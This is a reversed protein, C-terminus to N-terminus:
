PIVAEVQKSHKSEQGKLNVATAVYYYKYGAVVHLDTYDTSPDLSGNIKKYPGGSRTGRYVNYGLLHKSTSAKWSLQVKHQVPDVVRVTVEQETPPNKADSAFSLIASSSRNERPVFRITFSVSRGAPITFPLSLGGLRFDENSITASSVTVNAGRATLQGTQTAASGLSADGFDIAAPTVELQGTARGTGSLMITLTQNPAESVISIRGDVRGSKQPMFTVSFTYSAGAALSLPLDLGNLGFEAGTSAASLVTLSTRGRNTITVLKSSAQGVVVEGAQLRAVDCILQQNSASHSGSQSARINEAEAITIAPLLVTTCLVLSFFTRSMSQPLFMCVSKSLKYSSAFSASLVDQDRIRLDLVLSARISRVRPIDDDTLKAADRTQLTFHNRPAALKPSRTPQLQRQAPIV